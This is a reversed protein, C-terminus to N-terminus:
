LAFSPKYRPLPVAGQMQVSATPASEPVPVFVRSANQFPALVNVLRRARDNDVAPVHAPPEPKRFEGPLQEQMDHPRRAMIDDFVSEVSKVVHFEARQRASM